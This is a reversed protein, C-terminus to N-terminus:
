GQLVLTQRPSESRAGGEADLQKARMSAATLVALEAPALMEPTFGAIAVHGPNDGLVESIRNWTFYPSTTPLLIMRAAPEPMAFYIGWVTLAVCSGLASYLYTPSYLSKTAMSSFWASQVLSVTAMIGLGLSVGFIHSRYTMGLYRTAFCVFLLLCLTLISTAEQLQGALNLFYIGSGAHPTVSIAVSVLLSAAFIWRFIVKGARHLGELPKMLHRFVGYIILLILASLLFFCTWRSYFLINYALLKSFNMEKRFFLLAISITNELVFVGLYLAVFHFSRFLRKRALISLTVLALLTEALMAYKLLVDTMNTAGPVDIMVSWLSM